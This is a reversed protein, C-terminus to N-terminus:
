VVRELTDAKSESTYAFKAFDEQPHDGTLMKKPSATQLWFDINFSFTGYDLKKQSKWYGYYNKKNIKKKPLPQNKPTTPLYLERNIQFIKLNIKM